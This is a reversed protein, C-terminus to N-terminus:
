NDTRLSKLFARFRADLDIWDSEPFHSDDFSYVVDLDADYPYSTRCQYGGHLNKIKSCSFVIRHGGHGFLGASSADFLVASGGDVVDYGFRDRTASNGREIAWSLLQSTHNKIRGRRVLDIITPLKKEKIWADYPASGLWGRNVFIHIRAANPQVDACLWSRDYQGNPLTVSSLINRPVVFMHGEIKIRVAGRRACNTLEARQVVSPVKDQAILSPAGCILVCIAAVARVALQFAYKQCGV